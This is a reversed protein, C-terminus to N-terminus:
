FLPGYKGLAASMKELTGSTIPTEGNEIRRVQRASLGPIDSQRLGAKNRLQKLTIGFKRNHQLRKLDANRRYEPNTQYELTDIDIHIDDHPWHLFSGDEDIVFSNRNEQSIKRLAPLEAFPINYLQFSCSVVFLTDEAVSADAILAEPTGLQWARLLRRLVEPNQHIFTHKLTSVGSEHMLKPLLETKVDARIFLGKLHNKENVERIFESISSLGSAKSVIVVNKQGTLKKSRVSTFLRHTGGPAIKGQFREDLLVLSLSKSSKKKLTKVMEIGGDVYMRCNGDSM